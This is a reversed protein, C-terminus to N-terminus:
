TLPMLILLSIPMCKQNDVFLENKAHAKTWLTYSKGDTHLPPPTEDSVVITDVFDIKRKNFPWTHYRRGDKGIDV